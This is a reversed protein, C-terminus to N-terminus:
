VEMVEGALRSWHKIKGGKTTSVLTSM